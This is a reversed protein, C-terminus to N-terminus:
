ASALNETEFDIHLPSKQMALLFSFSCVNGRSKKPGSFKNLLRITM